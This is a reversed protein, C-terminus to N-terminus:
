LAIFHFLHKSNNKFISINQIFKYYNQSNKLMLQYNRPM